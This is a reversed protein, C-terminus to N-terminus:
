GTFGNMRNAVSESQRSTVPRRAAPSIVTKAAALRVPDGEPISRPANVPAM